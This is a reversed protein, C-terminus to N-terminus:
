VRWRHFSLDLMNEDGGPGRPSEGHLIATGDMESYLSLLCLSLWYRWDKAQPSPCISSDRNLEVPHASHQSFVCPLVPLRAAQAAMTSHSPFHCYASEISVMSPLCRSSNLRMAMLVDPYVVNQNSKPCFNTSLVRIADVAKLITLAPVSTSNMLTGKELSPLWCQERLIAAGDIQDVTASPLNVNRQKPVAICSCPVTSIPTLPLSQDM